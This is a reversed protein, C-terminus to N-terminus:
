NQRPKVIGDHMLYYSITSDDHIVGLLFRKGRSSLRWRRGFQDSQAEERSLAGPPLVDLSDFIAAFYQLSLKENIHVPVVWEFEPEQNIQQGTSREAELAEIQEDPHVYLRRSPLGSLVPRPRHNSLSDNTSFTDHTQVETWDHQDKLNILVLAALSDLHQAIEQEM